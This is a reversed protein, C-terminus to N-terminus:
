DIVIHYTLIENDYIRLIYRGKKFASIDIKETLNSIIGESQIKGSIDYLKYSADLKYNAATVDDIKIEREINLESSAPVPHVRFPTPDDPLCPLGSDNDACPDDPDIFGSCSYGFGEVCIETNVYHFGCENVVRVYITHRGTTTPRITASRNTGYTTISWGTPVVWEFDTAYIDGTISFGYTAFLSVTGGINLEANSVDPSGIWFEETLVIGNDLTARLWGEGNSSTSSATITISNNDSSLITINPSVEWTVSGQNNDLNVISSSGFCVFDLDNQFTISSVGDLFSQNTNTPDLWDRLRRQPSPGNWSVDFRGYEGPDNTPNSCNISSGGHLQGIIRKNNTFLPSGSSGNETVSFGNTTQLWNVRWHTNSNWIQGSAPTVNHTAIKKFDGSPHHIGVGGQTPSTTRDWGNFYVDINSELPSETLEFLAFDSNSNNAVLTAGSTSEAVFDSSNQSCTSSEYNWWFSYFSADTDGDADLSGVCHDATLFYPTQDNSTNNVLSGSCWRIGDVLIMAVGKKEDEWDQGESCSVNVQCPGSDGEGEEGTMMNKLDIKRYGHVVKDISIISQNKVALPEFLEIVIFQSFILGTTFKSPNKMTGKNNTSNFGGIVQSKDKSYIHLKADQPLWFEDYLLNISIADICEIELRWIRDGNSLVKWTGSNTLNLNANVPYGFRPPLGNQKDDEDETELASMNLAPFTRKSSILSENDDLRLETSKPSSYDSKQAFISNACLLLTLFLLLIQKM